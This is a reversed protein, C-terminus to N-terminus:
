CESRIWSQLNLNQEEQSIKLTSGRGGGIVSIAQSVKSGGPLLLNVLKEDLKM